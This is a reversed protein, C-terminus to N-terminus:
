AGCIDERKRGRGRLCCIIVVCCFFCWLPFMCCVLCILVCVCCVISQPQHDSVQYDCIWIHIHKCLFSAYNLWDETYHEYSEGREIRCYKENMVVYMSSAISSHPAFTTVRAGHFCPDSVPLCVLSDALLVLLKLSRVVKCILLCSPEMQTMCKFQKANQFARAKNLM